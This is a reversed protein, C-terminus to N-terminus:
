KPCVLQRQQFHKIMLLARTASNASASSEPELSYCRVPELGTAPVLKLPEPLCAPIVNWGLKVPLEAMEKSEPVASENGQASKGERGSADTPLVCLANLATRGRCASAEPSPRSDVQRGVVPEASRWRRVRLPCDSVTAYSGSINCSCAEPATYCQGSSLKSLSPYLRGQANGTGHFLLRNVDEPM